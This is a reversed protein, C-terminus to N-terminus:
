NFWEKLLVLEKYRPSQWFWKGALSASDWDLSGNLALILVTLELRARAVSRYESQLLDEDPLDKSALAKFLCGRPVGAEDSEEDPMSIRFQAYATEIMELAAYTDVSPLGLTGRFRGEDVIVKGDVKLTRGPIDVSIRCENEAAALTEEYINNM